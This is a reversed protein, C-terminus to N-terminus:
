MIDVLQEHSNFLCRVKATSISLLSLDGEQYVLLQNGGGTVAVGGGYLGGQGLPSSDVTSIIYSVKARTNKWFAGFKIPTSYEANTYSTAAIRANVFKINQRIWHEANRPTGYIPVVSRCM